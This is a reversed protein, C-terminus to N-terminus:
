ALGLRRVRSSPRGHELSARFVVVAHQATGFRDADAHRERETMTTSVTDHRNIYSAATQTLRDAAAGIEADYELLSVINAIGARVNHLHHSSAIGRSAELLAREILDVFSEAFTPIMDFRM